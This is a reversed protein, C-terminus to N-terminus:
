NVVGLIINDIYDILEFVKTRDLNKRFQKKWIPKDGNRASTRGDVIYFIKDITGKDTFFKETHDAISNELSIIIGINIQEKNIKKIAEIDGDARQLYCSDLYTKCENYFGINYDLLKAQVDVSSEKYGNESYDIVPDKFFEYRLNYKKFINEFILKTLYEVLTGNAGRVKGGQNNSSDYLKGSNEMSETYVRDVENTLIEKFKVDIKSIIKEKKVETNIM